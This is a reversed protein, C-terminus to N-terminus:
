ATQAWAERLVHRYFVALILIVLGEDLEGPIPAAILAVLLVRMPRGIRSDRAATRAARFGHRVHRRSRPIAYAVGLPVVAELAIGVLWTIM